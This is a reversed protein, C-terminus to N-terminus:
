DQINSLYNIFIDMFELETVFKWDFGDLYCTKKKYNAFFLTKSFNLHKSAQKIEKQRKIMNHALPSMQVGCNKGLAERWEGALLCLKVEVFGLRAM